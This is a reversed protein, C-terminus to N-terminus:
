TSLIQRSNDDDSSDDTYPILHKVNFVDTTRIHSLLKLRYANSNIKEVVEVPGIKRVPLKNYEGAPYCDKTPIAWVFDGMEFEVSRRKKDAAQKYKANAATLPDYVAQHIEQLSNVFNAAKGHVKSRNPLPILDLPGKPVAAYVIQFPSFGTSRNVARNHAFEAQCLKLNWSKVHEGVLSRLLNGLFQNVVETQGNTQPHYASSFQLQTNVMKWLSRWLHSLFRTDRDSVISKPLGHLRYVDRFYLQAVRIANTMKKYPIFHKMEIRLNVLFNSMRSLADVVRNTVGVKHKVVFTFSMAYFEVDYTIYNLKARTLKESFYPVPKHNQSLVAGIGVKSTDSHLEFPKAFDPLILIPATTLRLKILQFAKEAEETWSFRGGKKCDIIPAMITSFHPIFHRYFSALGHFSRVETITKSQPWQKVIVIKSEDVQLGEGSVVYGLFVVKSAM